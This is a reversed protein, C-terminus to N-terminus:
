QADGSDLVLKVPGTLRLPDLGPAATFGAGNAAGEPGSIETATESAAALGEPTQWIRAVATTLRYGDSRRAVVGGSLALSENAQDFRATPAALDVRVGDPLEMAANLNALLVAGPSATEVTASTAEIRYARGDNLRGFLLPRTMASEHAVKGPAATLAHQLAPPGSLLMFLFVVSAGALAALGVGRAVRPSTPRRARRLVGALKDDVAGADRSPESM